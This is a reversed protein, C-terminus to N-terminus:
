QKQKWSVLRSIKGFFVEESFCIFDHKSNQVGEKNTCLVFQVSDNSWVKDNALFEIM